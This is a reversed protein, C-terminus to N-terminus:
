GKQWDVLKGDRYYVRMKGVWGANKMEEQMRCALKIAQEHTLSGQRFGNIGVVTYCKTDVIASSETM